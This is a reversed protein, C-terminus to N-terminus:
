FKVTIGGVVRKPPSSVLLEDYVSTETFAERFLNRVGILMEWDANTFRMFPLGQSVQVDWRADVGPRTQDPKTYATNLKYLVFIRTASEPFETELSTTVDHISEGEARLAGPVNHALRYRDRSPENAWDSVGLSYDVTGRVNELLTHTYTVGVGIVDVDGSSGVSYHGLPVAGSETSNLGFVTVLQDDITQYFARMGITAGDMLQEVAVEYHRMDEPVFGSRTLPAFTRQPPLVDARSPPLFEEAGPATVHRAAVARIRTRDEPHHYTASFRPSLHSAQALYDYHAYNAGYGVTVRDSIRWEDHAYVSGVNRAAEPMTVVTAANGSEYRHAGFSMGFQYRHRAPDRTVYNGALIWSSLDGQNLAAKVVWDGHDRVPAGLSFFAVGRTRQLEFLQSPSDFMGTTLLNVQGQLPSHVIMSGATEVARGLTELSNTLFFDDEAAIEAVSTADKLISRRLHRIRWATESEDREEDDPAAAFETGSLGATAVRPAGVRGERRLTFSSVTRASPRVTVITNRAPLYGELHARVLYAGPLLSRLTYQGVKDSVAFSTSGGMASVVVGNLPVGREDLVVGSITGTTAAAIQTILSTPQRRDDGSDPQAGAAVGVAVGSSCILFAALVLRNGLVSPKTEPAGLPTGM